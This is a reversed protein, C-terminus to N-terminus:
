GPAPPGHTSRRVLSVPIVELDPAAASGEIADILAGVARRTLERLDVHVTTLRVLPWGAMPIDDFGVITLADPVALGAERAASLAGLAIVDNSCILATPRDALLLRHAALRGEEHSFGSRATHRRRLPRGHHRLRAEVALARERGTSTDAPGHIAGIDRHGAAVLLDVLAFAGAANDVSFSPSEPQDLVRNVLVHPIGRETLDRPLKSTRRTTTLIVGDYAGDSLADVSTAPTPEDSLLVARYAREDLARRIPEVLGPYYPNTLDDAVIAIRRTRRTSLARASDSVVYGLAEAAERVRERTAPAVGPVNRLARSVTPQSVEARRAVDFGTVTAPRWSRNGHMPICVM